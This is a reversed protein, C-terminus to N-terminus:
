FHASLIDLNLASYINSSLKLNPLNPFTPYNIIKNM